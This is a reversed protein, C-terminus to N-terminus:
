PYPTSQTTGDPVEMPDVIAARVRFEQCDGIGSATVRRQAEDAGGLELPAEGALSSEMLGSCTWHDSLAMARVVGQRSASNEITVSSALRSGVRSRVRTVAAVHYAL